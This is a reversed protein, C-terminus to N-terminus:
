QSEGKGDMKAGCHPCYNTLHEVIDAIRMGIFCWEGDMGEDYDETEVYNFPADVKCISCRHHYFDDKSEDHEIWEGHRVEVVDAAAIIDIAQQMGCEFGNSWDAHNRGCSLRDAIDGRLMEQVKQSTVSHLLAEREIYEAM